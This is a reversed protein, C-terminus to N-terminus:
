MVLAQFQLEQELGLAPPERKEVRKLPWLRSQVNEVRQGM